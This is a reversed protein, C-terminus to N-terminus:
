YIYKVVYMLLILGYSFTTYVYINMALYDRNITDEIQIQMLDYLSGNNESIM